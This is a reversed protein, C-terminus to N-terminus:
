YKKTRMAILFSKSFLNNQLVATLCTFGTILKKEKPKPESVQNNIKKAKAIFINDVLLDSLIM